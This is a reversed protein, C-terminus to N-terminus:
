GPRTKPPPIPHKSDGGRGGKRKASPRVTDPAEVLVEVTVGVLSAFQLPFREAVQLIRRASGDPERRGQEWAKVSGSSKGIARAFVPQSMRVRERIERVDKATYRPPPEVQRAEAARATIKHTSVRAPERLGKEIEVAERMAEILREGLTKAM